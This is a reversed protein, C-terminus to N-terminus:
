AAERAEARRKAEALSLYEQREGKAIWGRRRVASRLWHCATSRELGFHEAFERLTVVGRANVYALRETSNDSRPRGPGKGTKAHGRQTKARRVPSSPVTEAISGAAYTLVDEVAEAGLDGLDKALSAIAGLQDRSLRPFVDLVQLADEPTLGDLAQAVAVLAQAKQGITTVM